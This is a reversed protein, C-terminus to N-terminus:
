LMTINCTQNETVNSVIVKNGEIKGNCGSVNKITSTSYIIVTGNETTAKSLSDLANNMNSTVTVRYGSRSEDKTFDVMCRDKGKVDTLEVKWNDNDWMVDSNNDCVIKNVIYGSEKTPKEVATTGDITYALINESDINDKISDEKKNGLFHFTLLSIIIVGIILIVIVKKIDKEM